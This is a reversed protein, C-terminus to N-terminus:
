RPASRTKVSAEGIQMALVTTAKLEKRNPPRVEGWRGPLLRELFM